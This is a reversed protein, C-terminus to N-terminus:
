GCKAGQDAMTVCGGFQHCLVPGRADRVNRFDVVSFDQARARNSIPMILLRSGPNTTGCSRQRRCQGDSGMRSDEVHRIKRPHRLRILARLFRPVNPPIRIRTIQQFSRSGALMRASIVPCRTFRRRALQSFARTRVGGITFISISRSPIRMRHTHGCSIWPYADACHMMYNRSVFYPPTHDNTAYWPASNQLAQDSNVAGSVNWGPSEEAQFQSVTDGQLTTGFFQALFPLAFNMQHRAVTEVSVAGTVSAGGHRNTANSYGYDIAQESPTASPHPARNLDSPSIRSYTSSSVQEGDALQDDVHQAIFAAGDASIQQYGILGLQLGGFICLLGFTVSLATEIVAGGRKARM